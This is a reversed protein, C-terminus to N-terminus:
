GANHSAERRRSTVYETLCKVADEPTPGSGHRDVPGPLEPILATAEWLYDISRWPCQRLTIPEGSPLQLGPRTTQQKTM